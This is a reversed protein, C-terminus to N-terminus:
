KAVRKKLEEIEKELRLLERSLSTFLTLLANSSDIKPLLSLQPPNWSM